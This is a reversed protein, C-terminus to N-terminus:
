KRNDPYIVDKRDHTMVDVIKKMLADHMQNFTESSMNEFANTIADIDWYCPNEYLLCENPVRYDFFACQKNCVENKKCENKIIQLNIM